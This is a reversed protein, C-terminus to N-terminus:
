SDGRRHICAESCFLNRPLYMLHKGEVGISFYISYNQLEQPDTCRKLKVLGQWLDHDLSQLDDLFSEQKGFWQLFLILDGKSLPNHCIPFYRTLSFVPLHSAWLTVRTYRRAWWGVPSIIGNLIM